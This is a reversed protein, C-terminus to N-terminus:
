QIPLAPFEIVAHKGNAEIAFVTIPYADQRFKMIADIDTNEMTRRDWEGNIKTSLIIKM